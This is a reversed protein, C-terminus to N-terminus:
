AFIYARRLGVYLVRLLPYIVLEYFNLFIFVARRSLDGKFIRFVKVKSKVDDVSDCIFRRVFKGHQM